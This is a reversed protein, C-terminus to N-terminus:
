LESNHSILIEKGYNMVKSPLHLMYYGKSLISHLWQLQCLFCLARDTKVICLVIYACLHSNSGVPPRVFSRDAASSHDTDRLMVFLRHCVHSFSIVKDRSESPTCYITNTQLKCSRLAHMYVTVHVTSIYVYRLQNSQKYPDTGTDM